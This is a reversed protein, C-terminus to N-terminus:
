SFIIKHKYTLRKSIESPQTKLLSQLVAYTHNLDKEKEGKGTRGKERERGRVMGRGSKLM